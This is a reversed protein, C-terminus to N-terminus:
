TFDVYHLYRVEDRSNLGAKKKLVNLSLINGTSYLYKDPLM